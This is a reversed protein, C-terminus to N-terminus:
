KEAYHGNVIIERISCDNTTSGNSWSLFIRFDEIMTLGVSNFVHRRRGTTTIQLTSGSTAAQNSEVILDCRASAGLTKTLVLISDIYGVMRGTITPIIISRWSCATDFGSLKALKFSTSQTSAVMITGFPAAIAGCTTFGGDALQSLQVPLQPTVAGCSYILGNSIFAITSNYLTKQAFTPLTGTFYRLPKLQRGAVYGIQFGGTSSLDQYAVYVIGNLPYIFGIKYPGVAVEDALISSTAGGDYLYISAGTRDTTSGSVGSNVAIWWQNAHFAVDAVQADAGFDLKTPALIVGTSIFTGVYRGNGFLMIDQKIAVPHPAKQLAAAGTPTVSFYADTFSASLDYVGCDAGSAKNYFYYLSGQFKICSSGDTANTISHPFNGSNTVASPTIQHLKTSSIGYTVGTTVPSDIIYNILDTVAGAETGNTLTSLGPGQTLKGPTSVIDVNSASAYHGGQGMETLSDLHALPAAGVHFNSFKIQFTNDAPKGAM